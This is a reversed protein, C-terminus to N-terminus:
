PEWPEDASGGYISPVKGGMPRLYATLQGRHHIFHNSIIPLYTFVPLKFAGYFDVPTLLQEATMGEVRELVAPFQTMWIRLMEAKDPIAPEDKIVFKLEVVGRLMEITGYSMHWALEGAAKSKPAPRYDFRREPMAEIVRETVALERRLAAVMMDRLGIAFETSAGVETATTM